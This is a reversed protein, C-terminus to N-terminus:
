PIIVPLTLRGHPRFSEPLSYDDIFHQVIKKPDREFPRKKPSVPEHEGLQDQADDLDWQEEDGEELEHHQERAAVDKENSHPEQQTSKHDSTPSQSHSHADEAEAEKRAAKKEKHAHISESALGIGTAIGKVVFGLPGRAAGGGLGRGSGQGQYYENNNNGNYM